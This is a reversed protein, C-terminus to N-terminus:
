FTEAPKEATAKSEPAPIIKNIAAAMTRITEALKLEVVNKDSAATKAPNIAKILEDITKQTEAPLVPKVKALALQLGNLRQLVQRRPYTEQEGSTSSSYGEPGGRPFSSTGTAGGEQFEQARKDEAAAVDRALAFLPQATGADDLKVNKYDLKDLMGAVECRDDLSRTTSILKILANHVANKEGVSGLRALVSAARLRLWAYTSRDMEQIPQEHSVLKVLSATMANITQPPLQQRLQAHRELGVLAGLIVAPPYQNNTTASDLVMLLAGNATPLPKPPQRGDPSYQEDLMGIVLIANYRAAPHLSPDKVISWMTNGAIKTLDSQLQTNTTKGLYNKFIDERLSGIKGLKEPDTQTMAPFHYKAFYEEFKDKNAAYVAPDKLCQQAIARNRGAKEDVPRSQYEQGVATRCVWSLTLLVGIALRGGGSTVSNRCSSVLRLASM